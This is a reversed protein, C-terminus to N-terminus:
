FIRNFRCSRVKKVWGRDPLSNHGFVKLLVALPAFLIFYILALIIPTTLWGLVFGLNQWYQAPRFFWKPKLFSLLLFVLGLGLLLVNWQFKFVAFYLVVVCVLIGFSRPNPAEHENQWKKLNFKQWMLLNCPWPLVLDLISTPTLIVLVRWFFM